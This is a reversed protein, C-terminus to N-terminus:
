KSRHFVQDHKSKTTVTLQTLNTYVRPMQLEMKLEILFILDYYKKIFM